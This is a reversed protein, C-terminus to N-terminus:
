EYLTTRCVTTRRTHDLFMLFPHEMYIYIYSMLLRFTLLKVRIRGVHPFHHAGLLALLYRIPNLEPNLPNVAIKRITTAVISIFVMYSFSRQLFHLDSTKCNLTCLQASADTSFTKTIQRSIQKFISTRIQATLLRKGSRPGNITAASLAAIAAIGTQRSDTDM